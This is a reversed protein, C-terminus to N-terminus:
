ISAFVSKSILIGTVDVENGVSDPFILLGLKWSRSRPAFEVFQQSLFAVAITGGDRIEVPDRRTGRCNEVELSPNLVNKLGELQFPVGGCQM